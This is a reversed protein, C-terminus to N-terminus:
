IVMLLIREDLHDFHNMRSVFQGDTINTNDQMPSLPSATSGFVTALSAVVFWIFCKM